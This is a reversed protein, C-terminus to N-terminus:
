HRFKIIMWDEEILWRVGFFHKEYVIDFLNLDYDFGIDNRYANWMWNKKIYLSEDFDSDYGEEEDDCYKNVVDELKNLNLKADEYKIDAEKFCDESKDFYIIKIWKEKKKKFLEVVEAPSWEFENTLHIWNWYLCKDGVNYKGKKLKVKDALPISENYKLRADYRAILANVNQIGSEEEEDDADAEEEDKNDIKHKQSWRNKIILKFDPQIHTKWETLMKLLLQCNIKYEHGVKEQIWGSTNITISQVNPFIKFIIPKLSSSKAYKICKRCLERKCKKCKFTPLGYTVNKGCGCCYVQKSSYTEHTVIDYNDRCCDKRQMDPYMILKALEPLFYLYHWSITIDTKNRTYNLFTEWVYECHHNFSKNHALFISEMLIKYIEQNYYDQIEAGSCLSDFLFYAQFYKQYNEKTKINRIGEIKITKDGGMWLREDEGAYNSLWSCDWCRLAYGFQNGNNNLQIIMGENGAFKTAVAVQKSTSTPACLRINFQPMTMVSLMGCYFPGKERNHKMNEEDSIGRNYRWGTNGYYQVTERLTRSWIAYERNRRKVSKITEYLRIKRFTKSFATSLATWDTYLLVSLIHNMSLPTGAPINYGMRDNIQTEDDSLAKISRAKETGIYETAKILTTKYQKIKLRCITNNVM